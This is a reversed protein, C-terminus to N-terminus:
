IIELNISTGNDNITSTSYVNRCKIEFYDNSAIPIFWDVTYSIGSSPNTVNPYIEQRKDYIESGNKFIGINLRDGSTTSGFTIQGSIHLTAQTNTIDGITLKGNNDLTVPATWKSFTKTASTLTTWSGASMSISSSNKYTGKLQPVTEVQCWPTFTDNFKKRMFPSILTNIAFLFQYLVTTSIRINKIYFQGSFTSDGFTYPMNLLTSSIDTDTCTYNDMFTLNNLDSNAKIESESNFKNIPYGSCYVELKNNNISIVINQSENTTYLSSNNIAMQTYPRNLTTLQTNILYFIGNTKIKNMLVDSTHQNLGHHPIQLVDINYPLLPAFNDECTKESDGTLLIKYENLEILSILSFNNELFEVAYYDSYFSDSCNYFKIKANNDIVLEQGETSPTIVELGKTVRIFEDIESYYEQYIQPTYSSNLERHYIFTCESFDLSTSNVIAKLGNVAGTHDIDFHTLIAYDFKTIGKNVLWNIIAVSNAQIGFDVLINKDQIQIVTGSGCDQSAYIPMIKINANKFNTLEESTETLENVETNLSEINYDPLKEAILTPYNTLAVILDDDIVDGSTLTRIKYFNGKGDNYTLNGITKTISGDVLNEAAKLAAKTDFALISAVQLYQAIIDALEGSEAMEDLKNNIEEQIDLNEFYNDVYDKLEIYKAQLEEVAEANNNITPIVTKGLYNCFWLLSEYYTM